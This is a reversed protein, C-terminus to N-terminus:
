SAVRDLDPHLREARANLLDRAIVQLTGAIPIAVLAGLIGLLAAGILIAILVVLAPLQVTRRYIIPQLIHNEAQQYVVIIILMIITSTLGSTFYVAALVIVSGLTAGILPLLDFVAVVVGLTIAYPVGLVLLSVTVTVGAIVSILLNGAVYGGVNRNVDAGLQRARRAQDDTCQSLILECIRPLEILTFLTLFLVTVTAEIGTILTGAAGFALSPLASAHAQIKAVIHYHRDLSRLAPNHAARAAEQPANHAISDIQGVFPAVLLVVLIAVALLFAVLVTLSAVSRRMWREAFGVAPNLAIALFLAAGVWVLVDRAASLLNVAAAVAVILALVKLVTTVSVDLRV